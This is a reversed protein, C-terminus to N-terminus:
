DPPLSADWDSQFTATLRALTAADDLLIGCERNRELSTFTLNQSGVLARERDVIVAKAHSYADALLRVEVGHSELERYILLDDAAPSTPVLLRVAIGSEAADILQNRVEDDRVVEAYIEISRTAGDILTRMVERSNDPSTVIDGSPRWAEGSWDAEFLDAVADVDAPVTTIVAFERNATLASWSLNLTMIAAVRRDTVMTKIHSFQFGDPAWRVEIGAASLRDFADQNSNGGGFPDQELIVRVAVGRQHADALASLVEDAPLLYVYLDISREAGTIEDLIAFRGDEPLVVLGRVGDGEGSPEGTAPVDRFRDLWDTAAPARLAVVAGIVLAAVLLLTLRHV